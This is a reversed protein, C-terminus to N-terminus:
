KRPKRVVGRQGGARIKRQMAKLVLDRARKARKRAQDSSISLDEGIEDWKMFDRYRLLFPRKIKENLQSLCEQFANHLEVDLVEEEIRYLPQADTKEFNVLIVSSGARRSFSVERERRRLYSRIENRAITTVWSKLNDCHRLKELGSIIKLFIQNFLDQRCDEPLGFIKLLYHILRGYRNHLEEVLSSDPQGGGSKRFRAVLDKDNDIPVAM